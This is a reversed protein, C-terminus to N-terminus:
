VRIYDPRCERTFTIQTGTHNIDEYRTEANGGGSKTLCCTSMEVAWTMQSGSNQSTLSMCDSM